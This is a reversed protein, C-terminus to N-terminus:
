LFSNSRASVQMLSPFSPHCQPHSGKWMLLHQIGRTHRTQGNWNVDGHQTIIDKDWESATLNWLWELALRNHYDTCYRAATPRKSSTVPASSGAWLCDALASFFVSQSCVNSYYKVQCAPLSGCGTIRSVETLYPLNLSPWNKPPLFSLSFRTSCPTDNKQHLLQCEERKLPLCCKPTSVPSTTRRSTGDNMCSMFIADLKHQLQFSGLAGLTKNQM